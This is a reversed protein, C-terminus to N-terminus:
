RIWRKALVNVNEDSVNNALRRPKNEVLEGLIQLRIPNPKAQPKPMTTSRNKTVNEIQFVVHDGPVVVARPM